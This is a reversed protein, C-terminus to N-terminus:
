TIRILAPDLPRLRAPDFPTLDTTDAVGHAVLEALAEGTAPANLIGWVSHGTAIYAGEAGPVKGILPLGDQTMPRFCAQRAVIRESHFAPSLRECIAQLRTIAGRDPKVEAPDMPLPAQTSFATVHTSGDARPFVEITVANGRDEQYDLFLAEAPVETGTHYVLSPSQQGFVAPLKLWEAARLSWPGMAVVVADAEITEGDVKVGQVVDGRRVIGTVEGHRLRAGHQQAARMIALTFSRPNVMATTETTSLQAGIIVGSSLWSLEAAVHRPEDGEAVVLGSYASVRQYGWGGRFEEQLRAHLAFSRRALADLPSGVCWDLALFGGAKGSASSAVESCEVVTVDVGRRALFYGTCVGIVGGGCIVVHMPM